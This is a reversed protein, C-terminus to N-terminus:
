LVGWQFMVDSTIGKLSCLRQSRPPLAVRAANAAAALVATAGQAAAAAVSSAATDRVLGVVNAEKHGPSRARTTLCVCYGGRCGDPRGCATPWNKDCTSHHVARRWGQDVEWSRGGVRGLSEHSFVLVHLIVLLRLSRRTHDNQSLPKPRWHPRPSLGDSVRVGCHRKARLSATSAAAAM